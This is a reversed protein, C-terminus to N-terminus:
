TLRCRETGGTALCCVTHKAIMLLTFPGSSIGKKLLTLKFITLAQPARQIAVRMGIILM